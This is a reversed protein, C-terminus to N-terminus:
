EIDVDGFIRLGVVIYIRHGVVINTRQGVVIYIRQQVVINTRQGM